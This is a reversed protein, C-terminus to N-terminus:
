SEAIKKLLNPLECISNVTYGYWPDEGITRIWIGTIGVGSAGEMDAEISDGVHVTSEASVGLAELMYNFIQPNPKRIGLDRSCVMSDFYQAYNAKKLMEHPQDSMTNSLLAVKYRESLWKLVDGTCDFYNSVYYNKFIDHLDNLMEVDAPISLRRLFLSYVEEFTQEKGKARIRNLNGLAVKFSSNIERLKIGYGLGNLHQILAQHYKDYDIGGDVLTGGFDLIVASIEM